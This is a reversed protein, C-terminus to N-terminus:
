TARHIGPLISHAGTVFLLTSGNPEAKAVYQGSFLGGAGPKAEIVLPRGLTEVMKNGILRSVVDAQGGSATPIIISWPGPPMTAGQAWASTGSTSIAALAAASRMFERRTQHQGRTMGGGLQGTMTAERQM